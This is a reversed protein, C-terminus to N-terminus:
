WSNAVRYNGAKTDIAIFSTQGHSCSGSNLFLRSGHEANASVHTHGTVIVDAERHEAWEIAWRQFPCRAPDLEVRTLWHDLHEFARYVPDLGFRRVWAGLCVMVESLWRARRILLDHVHGHMFHLKVGDAHLTLEGPVGLDRAVIDHNGHLYTYQSRDFRKAIEPHREKCAKMAQRPTFPVPGTLTEWIDGLLVIREFNRELHSLFRLFEADDHGFLDAKDESGLHLDSIVAIEV